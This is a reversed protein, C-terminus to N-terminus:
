AKIGEVYLSYPKHNKQDNVLLPNSSVGFEERNIISFGVRKLLHSMAVFDYGFKHEGGQRFTRTMLDAEGWEESFKDDIGVISWDHKYYAAIFKEIDPVIIRVVGGPKLVRLCEKLFPIAEYERDMHEVVHECRIVEVSASKFPIKKRCDYTFSINKLMDADINVWGEEGFPGAGINLYLNGQSGIKKIRNIKFPNFKSGFRIFFLKMEYRITEFLENSLGTLKLLRAKNAKM